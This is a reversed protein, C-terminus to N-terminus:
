SFFFSVFSAPFSLISVRVLDNSGNPTCPRLKISAMHKREFVSGLSHLIDFGLYSDELFINSETTHGPPFRPPSAPPSSTGVKRSWTNLIEVSSPVAAERGLTLPRKQKHNLATPDKPLRPDLRFLPPIPYFM